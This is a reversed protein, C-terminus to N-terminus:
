VYSYLLSYVHLYARMRSTYNNHDITYSSMREFCAPTRLTNSMNLQIDVNWMSLIAYIHADANAIRERVHQSARQILPTNEHTGPATNECFAYMANNWCMQDSVCKSLRKSLSLVYNVLMKM